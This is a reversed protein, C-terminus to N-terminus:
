FLCSSQQPFNKFNLVKETPFYGTIIINLRKHYYVFAWPGYISDVIECIEQVTDTKQLMHLIFKSDCMGNPINHRNIVGYFADGNWLLINGADDTLPQQM